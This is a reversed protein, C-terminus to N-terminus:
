PLLWLRGIFGRWGERGLLHCVEMCWGGISRSRGGEMRLGARLILKIRAMVLHSHYVYLATKITEFPTVAAVSELVGAGMGALIGRGGSLKGNKDVLAGKIGDFALFRVSAKLTNGVILSSCGAYLASVGKTRVTQSIITLPNRSQPTTTTSTTPNSPAFQLMTKAFEFPYTAAGEIAGATAGAM